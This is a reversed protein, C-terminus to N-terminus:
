VVAYSAYGNVLTTVITSGGSGTGYFAKFPLHIYIGKDSEIGPSTQQFIVEELFFQLSHAGSTFKFTLSSKTNNVAKYLLVTDAFFATISGSVQLIGEPLDTRCGNGGITYNNGNLGFDAILSAETVIALQTGSEEISGQFNSFKLLELTTLSSAFPAASVTRKAGILYINATLEDEGGYAFAFNSVKCGNFMEYAPIDPYQQELVLSPQRKTGKFIHTYLGGSGTTTPTGFMAQLWFGIGVQDIPVVISGFIDTNGIAPRLQDRRSCITASHILNQNIALRSQNFPMNYGLPSAPTLGYASEYSLALQSNVGKARPM